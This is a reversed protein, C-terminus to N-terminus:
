IFFGNQSSTFHTLTDRGLMQTKILTTNTLFPARIGEEAAMPATIVFAEDWIGSDIWNQLTAAGGEILISQVGDNQLATLMQQAAATGAGTYRLIKADSNKLNPIKPATSFSAVYIQPQTNGFIRNNLLPEDLLATRYGVLIAQNTARLQHTFRKAITGSIIMRDATGSGIIENATQAWKLTVYPRRLEQQTIFKRNLLRCEKELVGVEVTIGAARMKAIGQGRVKSFNDQCGVVVKKIGSKIILDACPPTKGYHACPELSVYLTSRPMLDQNGITVADFCNPEAHQGGYKQHYGEGIIHNNHVLVAGVMPNPATSLEALQALQLCRQM